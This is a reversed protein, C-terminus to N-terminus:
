IERMIGKEVEGIIIGKEVEGIIIGKMAAGEWIEGYDGDGGRWNGGGEDCGRRL